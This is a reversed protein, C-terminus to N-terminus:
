IKKRGREKERIKFKKRRGPRQKNDKNEKKKIQM